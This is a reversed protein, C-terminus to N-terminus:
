DETDGPKSDESEILRSHFVIIKSGNNPIRPRLPGGPHMQNALIKSLIKADINVPFIPRDNEKRTTGEDAKLILTISAENFSNPLQEERENNM